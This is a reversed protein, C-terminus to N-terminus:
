KRILNPKHDVNKIIAYKLMNEDFYLSSISLIHTYVFFSLRHLQFIVCVGRFPQNNLSLDWGCPLKPTQCRGFDYWLFPSAKRCGPNPTPMWIPHIIHNRPPRLLSHQHSCIGTALTTNDQCFLHWPSFALLILPKPFKLAFKLTSLISTM